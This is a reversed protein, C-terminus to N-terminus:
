SSLSVRANAFLAATNDAKKAREESREREGRNELCRTTSRQRNVRPSVFSASTLESISLTDYSPISFTHDKFLVQSSPPSLLCNEGKRPKWGLARAKSRCFAEIEE